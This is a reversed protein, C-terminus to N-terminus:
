RRSLVNHRVAERLAATLEPEALGAAAALLRHHVERGGVAAVGVVSQAGPGLRGLRALLM